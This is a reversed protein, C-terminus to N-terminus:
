EQRPQRDISSVRSMLGRSRPRKQDRDGEDDDRPHWRLQCTDGCFRTPPHLEEEDLEGDARGTQWAFERSPVRGEALLEERPYHYFM